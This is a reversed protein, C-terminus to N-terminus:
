NTPQLSHATIHLDIFSNIPTNLKLYTQLVTKFLVLNEQCETNIHLTLEIGHNLLTSSHSARKTLSRCQVSLIHHTVFTYYASNISSCSLLHNKFYTTIDTEHLNFLSTNLTTLSLYKWYDEFHTIWKRKSTLPSIAQAGKIYKIRKDRLTFFLNNKELLLRETNLNSCNAQICIMPIDTSELDTHTQILALSCLTEEQYKKQLYYFFNDNESHKAYYVPPCYYSKNGMSVTCDIINEIESNAENPTQTPYLPHQSQTYNWFFPDLQKPFLNILPICNLKFCDNEIENTIFHPHNFTFIFTIEQHDVNEVLHMLQTIEFFYFKEPFAIYEILLKTAQDINESYSLINNETDIGTKKFSSINLLIINDDFKIEIKELHQYLLTHLKEAYNKQKDLYLKISDFGQQGLAKFALPSLLTLSLQTSSSFQTHLTLPWIKLSHCSTFYYKKYSADQIYFSTQKSLSIPEHIEHETLKIKAITFAPVNRLYHPALVWLLSEALEYHQDHLQSQLKTNLQTFSELLHAIASDEDTNAQVALSTTLNPHNESFAKAATRIYSLEKQYYETLNNKM